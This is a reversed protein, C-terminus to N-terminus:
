QISFIHVPRCQLSLFVQGKKVLVAFKLLYKWCTAPINGPILQREPVCSPPFLSKWFEVNFNWHFANNYETKVGLINDHM